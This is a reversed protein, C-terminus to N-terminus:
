GHLIEAKEKSEVKESIMYGRGECKPCLHVEQTEKITITRNGKCTPCILM